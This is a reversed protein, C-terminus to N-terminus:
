TDFKSDDELPEEYHDPSHTDIKHVYQNLTKM